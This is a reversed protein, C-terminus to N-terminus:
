LRPPRPPGCRPHSRARPRHGRLRRGQAESAGTEGCSRQLGLINALENQSMALEAGGQLEAATALWRSLRQDAAHMANCVGLRAAYGMQAFSFRTLVREVACASGAIEALQALQMSWAHGHTLCVRRGWGNPLGLAGLVGAAATWDILACEIEHGSEMTVRSSILGSSRFYARDVECGEHKLV